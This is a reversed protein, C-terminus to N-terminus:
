SAPGPLNCYRDSCPSPFSGAALLRFLEAIGESVTVTTEFALERAIRAFSVKYDRPDEEKHVFRIDAEPRLELLIDALDQKRYNEATAGVNFVRYAVTEHDAELVQVCARALDTTHCYPRWFQRGYIELPRELAVDRTFENVTLDFRMRPSPGYATSFRLCTPILGPRGPKLLRQEFEVKTRAYLSLPNLPTDETCHEVDEFRGYNSCTSAFVFREVGARSAEELLRSSAVLNTERALEPERSCAPDGVIAALHVIADAGRLVGAYTEPFRLDAEVLRFGAEGALDRVGHDGFLLRDLGLVEDGRALLQRVLVSGIYGAAGTVVIRRRM